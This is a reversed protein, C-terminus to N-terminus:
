WRPVVQLAHSPTGKSGVSGRRDDSRVKHYNGSFPCNSIMARISETLEKASVQVKLGPRVASPEGLSRRHSRVSPGSSRWRSPWRPRKRPPMELGNIPWGRGSRTSLTVEGTKRETDQLRRDEESSARKRKLGDKGAKVFENPRSTLRHAEFV